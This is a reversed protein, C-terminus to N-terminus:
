RSGHRLLESLVQAMQQARTQQDRDLQDLQSRLRVLDQEIQTREARPRSLVPGWIEDPLGQSTMSAIEDEARRKSAEKDAIQLLLEQKKTSGELHAQSLQAHQQDLRAKDAADQGPQGGPMGVDAHTRWMGDADIRIPIGPKEPHGSQIARWTDNRADLRAAYHRAGDRAYAQNDADLWIGPETAHRRQEGRPTGLYRDPLQPSRTAPERRDVHMGIRHQASPQAEPHQPSADPIHAAAQATATAFGAASGAGPANTQVARESEHAQEYGSGRHFSDEIRIEFM